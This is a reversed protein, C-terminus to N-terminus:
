TKYVLIPFIQCVVKLWLDFVQMWILYDKFKYGSSSKQEQNASM